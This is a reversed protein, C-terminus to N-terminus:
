WVSAGRTHSLYGGFVGPSRCPAPCTHRRATHHARRPDSRPTAVVVRSRAELTAIFIEGASKANRGTRRADESGSTPQEPAAFSGIWGSSSSASESCRLGFGVFAESPARIKASVFRESGGPCDHAVHWTGEDANVSGRGDGVESPATGPRKPNRLVGVM